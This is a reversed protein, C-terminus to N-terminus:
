VDLKQIERAHTTKFLAYKYGTVAFPPLIKIIETSTQRGMHFQVKPSPVYNGLTEWLPRLKGFNGVPTSFMPEEFNSARPHAQAYPSKFRHEFIGTFSNM